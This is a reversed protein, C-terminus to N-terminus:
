RKLRPRLESGPWSRANTCVCSRLQKEETCAEEPRQPQVNPCVSKELKRNFTLLCRQAIKCNLVALYPDSCSRVVKM